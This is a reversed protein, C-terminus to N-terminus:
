IKGSIYLSFNISWHLAHGIMEPLKVQKALIEVGILDSM